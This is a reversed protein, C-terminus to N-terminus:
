RGDRRTYAGIDLNARVSQTYFIRRGEAVHSIGGSLIAAPSKGTIEKGKFKISGSSPQLMGSITKLLTSKGAGNSGLVGVIEGTRVRLGVGHLAQASGYGVVLDTVELLNADQQTAM